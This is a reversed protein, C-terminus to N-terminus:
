QTLMNELFSGGRHGREEQWREMCLWQEGSYAGKSPFPMARHLWIFLVPLL